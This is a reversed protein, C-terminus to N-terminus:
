EHWPWSYLCFFRISEWAGSFSCFICTYHKSNIYVMRSLNDLTHIQSKVTPHDAVQVEHRTPRAVWLAHSQKGFLDCAYCTFITPSEAGISRCYLTPAQCWLLLWFQHLAMSSITFFTAYTPPKRHVSVCPWFNLGQFRSQLSFIFQWTISKRAMNGRPGM